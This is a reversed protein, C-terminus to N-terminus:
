EIIERLIERDPISEPNEKHNIYELKLVVLIFSLSSFTKKTNVATEIMKFTLRVKNKCKKELGSMM